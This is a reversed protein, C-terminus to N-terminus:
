KNWRLVTVKMRIDFDPRDNKDTGVEAIKDAAEMGYVVEGFVTYNGDLHPTGGIAKYVKIQEASFVYHLSKEYVPEILNDLNKEIVVLSDNLKEKKFKELKKAIEANEPLKM